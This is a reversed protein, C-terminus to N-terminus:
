NADSGEEEREPDGGVRLRGPLAPDQADPVEALRRGEVRVPRRRGQRLDEGVVEVLAEIREVLTVPGNGHEGLGQRGYGRVAQDVRDPQALADLEVVALLH